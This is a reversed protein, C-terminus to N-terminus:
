LAGMVRYHLAFGRRRRDTMPEDVAGSLDDETGQFVTM